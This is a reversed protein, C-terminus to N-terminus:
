RAAFCYRATAAEKTMDEEWELDHSFRLGM